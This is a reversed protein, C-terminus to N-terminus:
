VLCKQVYYSFFCNRVETNDLGYTRYLVMLPVSLRNEIKKREEQDLNSEWMVFKAELLNKRKAEARSAMELVLADQENKFGESTYSHGSRLLGMLFNIKSTKIPPLKNNDVDYSFEILSQEVELASIVGLSALQKIQTQTFGLKAYPTIDFSWEDSLRTTTEKLNLLSSSSSIMTNPQTDPKTDEKHTTQIYNTNVKHKTEIQLLENYINNIIEYVSWGGRGNKISNVKIFKKECLRKISTKISGKPIELTHSIHNISLPDTVYSCSKKCAEFIYLLLKKQVGVLTSVYHSQTRNTDPKHTTQTKQTNLKTNPKHATQTINKIENHATQTTNTDPKHTRNTHLKHRTKNVIIEKREKIFYNREESFSNIKQIKKLSDPEDFVRNKSYKSLFHQNLNPILPTEREKIYNEFMGKKLAM